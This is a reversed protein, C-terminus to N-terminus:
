SSAIESTECSSNECSNRPEPAFIFSFSLISLNVFKLLKDESILHITNLTLFLAEM